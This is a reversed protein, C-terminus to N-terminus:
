GDAGMLFRRLIRLGVPGSKEPHFQCGTMNDKAVAATDKKNNRFFDLISM